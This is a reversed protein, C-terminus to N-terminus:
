KYKEWNIFGQGDFHVPLSHDVLNKYRILTATLSTNFKKSIEKILEISFKRGDVKKFFLDYPMLLEAAFLNAEYEINGLNTWDDLSRSDDQHINKILKRHMEYHGLEHALIFRKRQNSKIDSNITILAEDKSFSIRGQAGEMKQYQVATVGRFLAIDEISLALPDARIGCTDIVQDAYHKAILNILKEAM